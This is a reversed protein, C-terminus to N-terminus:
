FQERNGKAMRIAGESRVENIEIDGRCVRHEMWWMCVCVEEKRKIGEILIVGKAQSDDPKVETKNQWISYQEM